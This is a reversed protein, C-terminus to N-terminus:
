CATAAPAPRLESKILKALVYADIPNTAWARDEPKTFVPVTPNKRPQFAWHKREVPTYTGLPAITEAAFGICIAGLCVSLLPKM